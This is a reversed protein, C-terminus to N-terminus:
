AQPKVFQHLAEAVGQEHLSAALIRAMTTRL